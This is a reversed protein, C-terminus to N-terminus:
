IEKVGQNVTRVYLVGTESDMEITRGYNGGTDEGILHIGLEKLANKCAEVNRQGIKMTDSSGAFSFMQAGGAMKAVMSFRKSGKETMKKVLYPVGTDAYKILNMEKGRCLSSSPLMVHILGAMKLHKDYIAVGVCSGLGTTRIKDPTEAINMDAIGVKIVNM